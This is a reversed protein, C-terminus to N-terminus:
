PQVEFRRFSRYHDDTYWYASPPAGATIIRRAGRTRAGPTPVTYERYTGRPAPPLLRERNQFVTGDQRYPFPGGRAILALTDRAERPLFAPLDQAQPAATDAPRARDAGPEPARLLLATAAIASLVFLLKLLRM